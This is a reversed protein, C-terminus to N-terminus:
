QYITVPVPYVHMVFFKAAKKAFLNKEDTQICVDQGLAAVQCKCLERNDFIPFIKIRLFNKLFLLIQPLSAARHCMFFYNCM